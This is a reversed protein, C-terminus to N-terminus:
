DKKKAKTTKIEEGMSEQIQFEMDGLRITEFKDINKPKRESVHVEGAADTWRYVVKEAYKSDPFVSEKIKEGKFIIGIDSFFSGVTGNLQYKDWAMAVQGFDRGAFLQLSAIIIIFVVLIIIFKKIM